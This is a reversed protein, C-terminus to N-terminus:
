GERGLPFIVQLVVIIRRNIGTILGVDGLAGDAHRGGRMLVLQRRIETHQM